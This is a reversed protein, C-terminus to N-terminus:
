LAVSTMSMLIVLQDYEDTKSSRQCLFYTHGIQHERDLLVTIRRNMAALLERCDVGDADTSIGPHPADPMMEKFVFRRRLATDLLAISRDATNMTGVVHLNAPM